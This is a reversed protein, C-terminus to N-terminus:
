IGGESSFSLGGGCTLDATVFQDFLAIYEHRRPSSAQATVLEWTPRRSDALLYDARAVLTDDITQADGAAIRRLAPVDRLVVLWPNRDEWFRHARAIYASWRELRAPWDPTAALRGLDEVVEQFQRTRNGDKVLQGAVRLRGAHAKITACLGHDAGAMLHIRTAAAVLADWSGAARAEEEKRLAAGPFADIMRLLHLQRIVVGFDIRETGPKFRRAITEPDIFAVEDTLLTARRRSEIAGAWLLARACRHLLRKELRESGRELYEGVMERIDYHWLALRLRDRLLRFFRSGLDRSGALVAAATPEPYIAVRCGEDSAAVDFPFSGCQGSADPTELDGLVEGARFTMLEQGGDLMRAAGDLVAYLEGGMNHVRVIM